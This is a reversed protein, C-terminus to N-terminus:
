KWDCRANAMHHLPQTCQEVAEADPSSIFIDVGDIRATYLLIMLMNRLWECNMNMM